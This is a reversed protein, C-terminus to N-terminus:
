GAAGRGAEHLELGQGTVVLLLDCDGGDKAVVPLNSEAALVRARSRLQEDPVAACVGVRPPTWVTQDSSPTRHPSRGQPVPGLTRGNTGLFSKRCPTKALITGRGRGRAGMKDRRAVAVM